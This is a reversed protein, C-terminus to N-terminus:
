YAMLMFEWDPASPRHHRIEFKYGLGWSEILPKIEFFDKFTHYISVILIPKQQIITEKAGLITDYEVGEVDLKILGVNLAREGVFEDISVMSVEHAPTTGVVRTTAGADCEGRSYFALTGKSRGLALPIIEIKDKKNGLKAANEEIIRRMTPVTGPNAEFTYVKRPHHETFVMASDGVFGGGDIIDKGKVKEQVDSPFQNFSLHTALHESDLTSYTPLMYPCNYVKGLATIREQDEHDLLHILPLVKAFIDWAPGGGSLRRAIFRAAVQHSLEDTNAVLRDYREKLEEPEIDWESEYRGSNVQIGFMRRFPRKVERWIKALGKPKAMTQM